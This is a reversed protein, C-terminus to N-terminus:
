SAALKPNPGFRNEGYTGDSVTFVLLVIGGICPVFAILAWWGSRNTDHLRRVLVGLAPLLVALSYISGLLGFGFDDGGTGIVLDLVGLVISILLNFLAFYWYEARRARGHFVAYKKLVSLYWSM